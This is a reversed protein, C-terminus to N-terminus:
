KIITKDPIKGNEFHKDLWGSVVNERNDFYKVYPKIDLLPTGDIMDVQTFFLKNGQIRQIKIVSLGIHNPRHPSRIAFIGHKEDELFPQGEITVKDSNIYTKLSSTFESYASEQEAALEKANQYLRQKHELRDKKSLTLWSVLFGGIFTGIPVGISILWNPECAAM